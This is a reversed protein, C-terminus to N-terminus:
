MKRYFKLQLSLFEDITSPIPYALREDSALNNRTGVISLTTAM